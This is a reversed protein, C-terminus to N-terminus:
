EHCPLCSLPRALWNELEHKDLPNLIECGSLWIHHARSCQILRVLLPPMAPEGWAEIKLITGEPLPCPLCVSIGVASLDYVLCHWSEESSALRPWVLCRQVMKFRRAARREKSPAPQLNDDNPIDTRDPMVLEHSPLNM